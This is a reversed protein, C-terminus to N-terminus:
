TLPRAASCAWAWAWAAAAWPRGGGCYEAGRRWAIGNWGGIVSWGCTDAAGPGAKTGVATGTRVELLAVDAVVALLKEIDPDAKSRDAPAESQVGASAAAGAGDSSSGLSTTGPVKPMSEPASPGGGGGRDSDADYGDRDGDADNEGAGVGGLDGIGDNAGTHGGGGLTGDGSASSPRLRPPRGGPSSAGESDM